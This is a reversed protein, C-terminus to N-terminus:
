PARENRRLGAKVAATTSVSARPIPALVAMKLRTFARKSRGSGTRSGPRRTSNASAVRAGLRTSSEGGM